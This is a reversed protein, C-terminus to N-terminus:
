KVKWHGSKDSGIREILGNDKLKKISREVTRDSVKLKLVIQETTLSGDKRLMELITKSNKTIKVGVNVGDNVGDNVLFWSYLWDM